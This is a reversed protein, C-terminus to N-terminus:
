ADMSEIDAIIGIVDALDSKKYHSASHYHMLAITARGLQDASAALRAFGRVAETFHHPTFTMSLPMDRGGDDGVSAVDVICGMEPDYYAFVYQNERKALEAPGNIFERALAHLCENLFQTGVNRAANHLIRNHALEENTPRYNGVYAMGLILELLLKAVSAPSTDLGRMEDRVVAPSKEAHLMTLAIAHHRGNDNLHPEPTNQAQHTEQMAVVGLPDFLRMSVPVLKAFEDHVNCLYTFLPAPNKM